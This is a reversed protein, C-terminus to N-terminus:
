ADEDAATKQRRKSKAILMYAALLAELVGPEYIYGERVYQPKAVHPPYLEGHKYPEVFAEGYTRLVNSAIEAYIPATENFRVPVLTRGMAAKVVTLDLTDRRKAYEGARIPPQAPDRTMRILNLARLVESDVPGLSTNRRSRDVDLTETIGLFMAAFHDLLETKTDILSNYSVLRITHAGFASAYRDLVLAPNIVESGAPASQQRHLRELLPITDGRRMAGQWASITVETWRRVYFVITVPANGVLQKLLAVADDSLLALAESSILITESPGAVLSAFEEKLQDDGGALLRQALGAHGPGRTGLWQKPYAIGHTLLTDHLQLFAGQLFTTGTKHPGIHIVYRPM